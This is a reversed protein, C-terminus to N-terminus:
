CLLQKGQDPQEEQGGMTDMVPHQARTVHDEPYTVQEYRYWEREM